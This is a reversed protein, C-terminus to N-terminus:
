LAKNAGTASCRVEARKRLSSTALLRRAEFWDRWDDQLPEGRRKWLDFARQEVAQRFSPLESSGVIRAKFSSFDYLVLEDWVGSTWIVGEKLQKQCYKPYRTKIPDSGAIANQNERLDVFNAEAVGAIECELLHTYVHGHQSLAFALADAKTLAFYTGQGLKQHSYSSARALHRGVEVEDHLFNVLRYVRM